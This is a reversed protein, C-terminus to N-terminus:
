LEVPYTIINMQWEPYVQKAQKLIDECKSKNTFGFAQLFGSRNAINKFNGSIFKGEKGCVYNENLTNPLTAQIIYYNKKKM